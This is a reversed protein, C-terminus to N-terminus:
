VLIAELQAVLDDVQVTMGEAEHNESFEVAARKLAGAPDKFSGPKLTECQRM